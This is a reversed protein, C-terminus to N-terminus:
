TAIRAGLAEDARAADILAQRAKGGIKPNVLVSRCSGDPLIELVPWALDAKVRWLLPRALSQEGAARARSPAPM